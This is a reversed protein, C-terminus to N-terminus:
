LIFDSAALIKNTHVVLSFDAMSDGNMDGEVVYGPRGTSPDTLSADQAFRLEGAVGSFAGGGIFQFADNVGASARAM